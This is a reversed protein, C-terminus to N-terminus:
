AAPAIRDESAKSRILAFVMWAVTGLAAVLLLAFLGFPGWQPSIWAVPQFGIRELAAARVQDRVLLMGVITLALTTVALQVLRKTMGRQALLFLLMFTVLGLLASVLFVGTASISGGLFRHVTESPLLAAFVFGVVINIGTAIAAARAGFERAVRAAPSGTGAAFGATALALGAVAVAGTLMHLWRPIVTPDAFNLHLGRGSASFLTGFREADLMLTMNTTYILGITALVATVGAYLWAPAAGTRDIRHAIAYTGYYAAILAPVVALWAWAMLVSSTFFLRGFLVQLFLLPAVGFTVTAAAIVPMPKAVSALLERVHVNARHRLKAYLALVTGGLLLNMAIVHLTLTFMLLFWLLWAPAPLPLPEPQPIVSSVAPMM